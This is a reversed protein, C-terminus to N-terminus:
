FAISNIDKVMRLVGKLPLCFAWGVLFNVIQPVLMKGTGSCGSLHLM